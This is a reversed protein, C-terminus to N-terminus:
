KLTSVKIEQGTTGGDCFCTFDSACPNRNEETLKASMLLATVALRQLDRAAAVENQVYDLKDRLQVQSLYRDIFNVAL